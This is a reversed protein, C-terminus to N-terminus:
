LFVLAFDDSHFHELEVPFPSFVDPTPSTDTKPLVTEIVPKDPEVLEEEIKGALHDIGAEIRMQRLWRLHERRSKEREVPDWVEGFITLIDCVEYIKPASKYVAPYGELREITIMEFKQGSPKGAVNIDRYEALCDILRQYRHLQQPEIQSQDGDRTWTAPDLAAVIRLHHLTPPSPHLKKYRSSRPSGRAKLSLVLGNMMAMMAENGGIRLELPMSLEDFITRWSYKSVQSLHTIQSVNISIGLPDFPITRFLGRLIRRWGKTSRPYAILSFQVDEAPIGPDISTTETCQASFGFFSTMGPQMNDYCFAASRLKPAGPLRWQRSLLHLITSFDTAHDLWVGLRTSAPITLNDFIEKTMSTELDLALSELQPLAIPPFVNELTDDSQRIYRSLNLDQLHPSRELINALDKMTPMVAMTVTDSAALRLELSLKTLNELANFHDISSFGAGELVLSHYRPTQFLLAPLLWPERDSCKVSLSELNSIGAQQIDQQEFLAGLDAAKSGTIHLSRIRHLCSLFFFQDRTSTEYLKLKFSVPHEKSRHIWHYGRPINANSVFAWLKPNNMCLDAWRRCVFLIKTWKVQWPDSILVYEFFIQSLIDDPLISITAITNRYRKLELVQDFLLAMRQDVLSRINDRQEKSELPSFNDLSILPMHEKLVQAVYQLSEYATSM